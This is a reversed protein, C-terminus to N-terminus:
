RRRDDAAGWAQELIERPPRPDLLPRSAVRKAIERARVIDARPPRGAEEALAVGAIYAVTEVGEKLVEDLTKGSRAAVRRALRETEPNLTTSLPIRRPNSRCNGQDFIVLELGGSLSGTASMIGNRVAFRRKPRLDGTKLNM